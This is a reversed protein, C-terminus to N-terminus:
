NGIRSSKSLYIEALCISVANVKRLNQSLEDSFNTAHRKSSLIKRHFEFNTFTEHISEGEEEKKKKARMEKLASRVPFSLLNCEARARDQIMLLNSGIEM